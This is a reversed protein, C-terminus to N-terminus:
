RHRFLFLSMSFGGGDQEQNEPDVVTDASEDEVAAMEHQSMVPLAATALTETDGTGIWASVLLLLAAIAALPNSVKLKRHRHTRLM